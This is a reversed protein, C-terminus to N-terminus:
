IMRGGGLGGRGEAGAADKTYVGGPTPPVPTPEPLPAPTPAAAAVPPVATAPAVRLAWLDAKSSTGKAVARGDGATSVWDLATAKPCQNNLLAGLKPLLRALAATDPSGGHVARLSLHPACWPTGAAHEVFIEINESKSFALRYSDALASTAVLCVVGVLWCAVSRGGLM